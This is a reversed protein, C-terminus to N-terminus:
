ADRAQEFTSILNAAWQLDRAALYSKAFQGPGFKAFLAEILRQDEPSSAAAFALAVPGLGLEFLRNGARSQLYYDRKPFAEAILRVQADNLGFRRYTESQAPELARPNPLFIRTPCSEIIAPAIKSHAIDSLSQTAFVVAVNRKRLTKLWERIRDAFLPDDLFLWAEDLVLLTPRGDFRAELAHFLYTLVPAVLGPLAMLEEMEFTLVDASSLSDADADLFRGYPGELTYPTLAQRLVDRALLAVLGTMTREAVPASGLSKLASWLTEKVEPTILVREHALVGCLWDLAWLRAGEDDVDRLPQFALGGKVGLEYWAGGLALTAARASRGKDFIVLQSGQYRRFQLALVSLLVSKGAGTPGVILSHGVDGVHLTLRFPTAGKTKALLLPPGDLHECRAEGAWVASLPCMHALNLTHVIPQRLNAYAQGPLSGLWAEVANVNERITTFGRSNIAREVARIKEDAAHSDEDYVTVTTTVYGFAVLDDGLEQLASDADVAKNDADTDLLAAQENFMVERLIAGLSKRKAFWQRRYRSLAAQAQTRDLPLFRTAWRYAVGLRNLDDLVGPFTVAPFGLITVTRLHSRGIAPSLGGTLPEDCLFADLYAPIGPVRVPHRKTSVCSHLYTLTDQDDLPAIEPLVSALLDIARDTEQIFRELQEQYGGKRAAPQRPQGDSSSDPGPADDDAEHRSLHTWRGFLRSFQNLGFMQDGSNELFLAELRSVREVPPLYMFTLHAISEFHQGAPRSPDDWAADITGEFSARREEDVLWSVADPFQSRPYESAPVRTADFFLAWGSGFRKLVNNVRSAASMLEAETASDLDPGRYRVTRQFSGDKNLVVGPAILCAWPLWDALRYAHSRFERLNLM